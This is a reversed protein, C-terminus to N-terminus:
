EVSAKEREVIIFQVCECGGETVLEVRAFKLVGCADGFAPDGTRRERKGAPALRIQGFLNEGFEPRGVHAHEFLEAHQLCDISVHKLRVRGEGADAIRENIHASAARRDGLQAATRVPHMRKEAIERSGLQTRAAAFGSRVAECGLRMRTGSM